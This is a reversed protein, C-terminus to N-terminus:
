PMRCDSTRSASRDAVSAETPATMAGPPMNPISRTGSRGIQSSYRLRTRRRPHRRAPRAWTVSTSDTRCSRARRSVIKSWSYTSRRPGAAALAATRASRGSATPAWIVRRRSRAPKATSPPAPRSRRGARPRARRRRSRDQRRVLPLRCARSRQGQPLIGAMRRIRSKRSNRGHRAMGLPVCDLVLLAGGVGLAALDERADDLFQGDGGAVAAAIGSLFGRSRVIMASAFATLMGASFM